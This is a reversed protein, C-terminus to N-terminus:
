KCIRNIDEPKIKFKDCVCKPDNCLPGNTSKLGYTLCGYYAIFKTNNKEKDYSLDKLFEELIDETLENYYPKNEKSEIQQVLGIGLMPQRPCPYALPNGTCMPCYCPDKIRSDEM